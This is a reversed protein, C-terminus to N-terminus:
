EVTLAQVRRLLELLMGQSLRGTNTNRPSPHYSGWLTFLGPFTYHAGHSFKMGKTSHGQSRAYSLATDFSIKGLALVAKLHTLLKLEEELYPRCNRVEIPLPKDHPPVCKVAATLYLGHLQLGDDRSLSYPQNAWKMEYLAQFLFKATLDGTLVRGTRNGGHAAPAIGLILLWAKEDGFGPVPKKWYCESQFSARPIVSERFHVLRPCRTCAIIEQRLDGFSRM